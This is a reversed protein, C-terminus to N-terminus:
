EVNQLQERIRELEAKCGVVVQTIEQDAAKSGLTNIERQLEQLIFDLTKGVCPKDCCAAEEFQQLHSRLRTVEEAIDVRDAYVCVERLIREETEPNRPVLEEIRAILKQRYKETAQGIRGSIRDVSEKLYAVRAIIDAQLTAGEQERMALFTSLAQEIAQKLAALYVDHDSLDIQYKIIDQNQALLKILDSGGIEVGVALGLDKWVHGLQKALPLNATAQLPADSEFFAEIRVTVQGRGVAEGIWRRIDMELHQLEKPLSVSIELFRRNVSQIEAVLRGFTTVLCARGYATMSRLM